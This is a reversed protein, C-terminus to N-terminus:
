QHAAKKEKSIGSFVIFAIGVLALVLGIMRLWGVWDVIIWISGIAVGAGIGTLIFGPLLVAPGPRSLPKPQYLGKDILAMNKKHDTWIALLAIGLSFVIAAIPILFVVWEM